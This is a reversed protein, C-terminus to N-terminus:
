GTLSQFTDRKLHAGLARSLADALEHNTSRASQHLKNIAASIMGINHWAACEDTTFMAYAFERAENVTM